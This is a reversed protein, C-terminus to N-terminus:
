LGLSEPCSSSPQVRAEGTGLQSLPGKIAEGWCCLGQRRFSRSADLARARPPMRMSLVRSWPARKPAWKTEAALLQSM